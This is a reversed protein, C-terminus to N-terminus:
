LSESWTGRIDLRNYGRNATLSRVTERLYAIGEGMELSGQLAMIVLKKIFERFYLPFELDDDLDDMTVDEFQPRYDITLSDVDAYIKDNYITFTYPSVAKSKYEPAYVTDGKYVEVLQLFDEPLEGEGHFLNITETKTLLDNSFTGLENYLLSLVTNLADLMDYDSYKAENLDRIEPSMRVKRIIERPTM